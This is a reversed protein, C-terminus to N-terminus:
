FGLKPARKARREAIRLRILSRRLAAEVRREDIGPPHTRLQEEARRKAAEAREVDIEEARECADALVIIKDPRVELFGGTVALYTEDHGKRILLEGPQLTTMLPAHHLLIGLEGVIGPAVVVDVEDSMVQHEATIVDLKIPSM